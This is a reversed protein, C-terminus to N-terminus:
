DDTEEKARERARKMAEEARDRMDWLMMRVSDPIAKSEGFGDALAYAFDAALEWQRVDEEGPEWAFRYEPLLMWLDDDRLVLEAQRRDLGVEEVLYRIEEERTQDTPQANM